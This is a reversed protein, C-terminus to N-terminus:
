TIVWLCVESCPEKAQREWRHFPQLTGSGKQVSSQIRDYCFASYIIKIIVELTHSSELLMPIKLKCYCMLCIKYRHVSSTCMCASYKRCYDSSRWEICINFKNCMAVYAALSICPNRIYETDRVWINCFLEPSVQYLFFLFYQVKM